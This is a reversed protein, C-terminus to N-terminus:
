SLSAQAEGGSDGPDARGGRVWVAEKGERKCVRGQSLLSNCAKSKPKIFLLSCLCFKAQRKGCRSALLPLIAAPNAQWSSVLFFDRGEAGDGVRGRESEM